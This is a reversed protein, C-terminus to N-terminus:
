DNFNKEAWRQYDEIKRRIQGFNVPEWLQTKSNYKFEVRPKGQSNDVFDPQTFIEENKEPKLVVLSEEIIEEILDDNLNEEINIEIKREQIDQYRVSIRNGKPESKGGSQLKNVNLTKLKKWLIALGTKLLDYVAPALFSGVIISEPNERIFLIIDALESGTFNYYKEETKAKKFQIDTSDFYHEFEEIWDEPICHKYVLDIKRTQEM